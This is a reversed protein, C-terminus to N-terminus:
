VVLTDCFLWFGDHVGTVITVTTVFIKMKELSPKKLKCANKTLNLAPM